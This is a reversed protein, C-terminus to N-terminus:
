SQVYHQSCRVRAKLASRPQRFPCLGVSEDRLLPVFFPIEKNFRESGARDCVLGGLLDLLESIMMRAVLEQPPCIHSDAVPRKSKFLPPPLPPPPSPPVQLVVPRLDAMAPDLGDQLADRALTQRKEIFWLLAKRSAFTYNNSRRPANDLTSPKQERVANRQADTCGLARLLVWTDYMHLYSLTLKDSSPNPVLRNGVGTNRLVKSLVGGRNRGDPRREDDEPWSDYLSNCLATVSYLTPWDRGGTHYAGVPVRGKEGAGDASDAPISLFVKM